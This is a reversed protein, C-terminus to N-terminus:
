VDPPMWSGIFSNKFHTRFTNSLASNQVRIMAKLDKDASILTQVLLWSGETHQAYLFCKMPQIHTPSWAMLTINFIQATQKWEKPTPLVALQFEVVQESTISRWLREFEKSSLKADPILDILEKPKEDCVPTILLHDFVDLSPPPVEEALQVAPESVDIDLLPPQEVPPIVRTPSGPLDNLEIHLQRTPLEDLPNEAPKYPRTVYPPTQTIFHSSPRSYIVALSNFESNFELQQETPIDFSLEPSHAPKSFIKQAEYVNERLMRYYLLARDHVDMDMEEEIYYALLKGLSLQMEPARGRLFLKMSASLLNLKFSPETEDAISNIYQELIYPSESLTTGFEGLLWVLCARGEVSDEVHQLLDPIHNVFVDAKDPFKRVLTTSSVLLVTIIHPREITLLESFKVLCLEVANPHRLAITKITNVARKGVEINSDLAAESLENIIEHMNKDSILQALMEVKKVKVYVPDSYRCYFTKHNQQLSLSPLKDILIEIHALASYCIESCPSSAINLLIPRIRIAADSQLQPIENIIAMFLKIVAMLVGTNQAELHPDMRNLLDILESEDQIKYKTLTELVVAQGWESFENFRNLLYGAINNNIIIGGEHALIENLACISNIVVQADRDKITSYLFSAMNLEHILEPYHRYLKAVSLVAVRRVYASKDTLGSKLPVRVFEPLGKLKLLCLSRLALGRVTPNQDNMDKILTNIAMLSLEQNEDAYRCIYLYVLKKQRVDQTASAKVMEGFLSSVDIGQTMSAVVKQITLRYDESDRQTENRHLSNRLTSIESSPPLPASNTSM